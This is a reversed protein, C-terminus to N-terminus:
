FSTNDTTSIHKKWSTLYIIKKLKIFFFTQFDFLKCLFFFTNLLLMYQLTYTIFQYIYKHLYPYFIHNLLSHIYDKHLFTSHVYSYMSINGLILILLANM